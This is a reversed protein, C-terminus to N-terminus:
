RRNQTRGDERVAHRHQRSQHLALWHIEGTSQNTWREIRASQREISPHYRHNTYGPVIEQDKFRSGDLRLAPVLDEAGSLIFVESEDADLYQPLSKDTERTISPLPLNWGFGFPANGAGSDPAPTM